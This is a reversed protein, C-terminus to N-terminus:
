RKNVGTTAPQETGAAGARDIAERLSALSLRLADAADTRHQETIPHDSFRALVFLDALRHVPEPRVGLPTLVRDLHEHPAEQALRPAGAADLAELLRIYAAVIRERPDGTDTVAHLSATLGAEADQADVRLDPEDPDRQRSGRLRLAFFV